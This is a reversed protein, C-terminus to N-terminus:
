CVYPDYRVPTVYGLVLGTTNRTAATKSHWAGHNELIDGATTSIDVLGLEFVSKDQPGKRSNVISSDKPKSKKNLKPGSSRKTPSLTCNVASLLCLILLCKWTNM